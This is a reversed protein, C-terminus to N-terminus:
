CGGSCGSPMPGTDCGGGGCFGRLTYIIKRFVKKM